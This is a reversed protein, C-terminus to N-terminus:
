AFRPMSMSAIAVANWLPRLRRNLIITQRCKGDALESFIGIGFDTANEM